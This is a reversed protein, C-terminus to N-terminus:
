GGQSFDACHQSRVFGVGRIIFTEEYKKVNAVFINGPIQYMIM